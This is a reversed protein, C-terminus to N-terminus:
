QYVCASERAAAGPFSFGHYVTLATVAVAAVAAVAAAVHFHTRAAPSGIHTQQQWKDTACCM